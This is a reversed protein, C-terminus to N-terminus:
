KDKEQELHGFQSEYFKKALMPATWLPPLLIFGVPIATVIIFSQLSSIGGEGMKVLLAAALGIMVGWFIRVGGSPTDDGTVAMAITYTIGGGTTVLFLVLLILIVPVFIFSLPLQQFIALLAAPQGSENLAKSISGPNTLEYFIGTGGLVSFWFNTVIPAMVAVALVLERITRGRSIRTVFLAMIPGYGMFWGWFFVTWWGLWDGDGRFLSLKFFDSAYIGMGSLFSDFVFRGPGIVIVGVILAVAIKVNIGALFDIGKSIGKVASLGFIITAAAIILVQTTYTNPIGYLRNLADSLQLGLMGVPGITGAAVAIISFADVIIGLPGNLTKESFLPYLLTRCKLPMGKEYVAYMLVVVSLTGLIAWALFGWHLNAQAMAPGVAQPTGGIIEGFVPPPTLFHSMPEAASWFVGGGALLATMIMSVWSFTSYEPKDLRGMRASGYKSVGLGIAILFTLLLLVQWYAGLYKCAFVFAVNITGSVAEANILSAIVFLAIFAGSLGLVPWDIHSGTSSKRDQSM